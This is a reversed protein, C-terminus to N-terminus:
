DKDKGAMIKIREAEIDGYLDIEKLHKVIDDIEKERTKVDKGSKIENFLVKLRNLREITELLVIM